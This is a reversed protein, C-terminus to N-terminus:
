IKKIELIYYNNNKLYNLEKEDIIRKTFKKLFDSYYLVEYM